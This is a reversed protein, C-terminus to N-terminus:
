IKKLPNIIDYELVNVIKCMLDDSTVLKWDENAILNFASLHLSDLARLGHEFGYKILLNEAEDFYLNM